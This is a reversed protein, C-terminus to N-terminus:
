FLILSTPLVASNRVKHQTPQNQQTFHNKQNQQNQQNQQHQQSESKGIKSCSERETDYKIDEFHRSKWFIACTPDKETETNTKTKTMKTLLDYKIDQKEFIYCM